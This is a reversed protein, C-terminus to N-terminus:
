FFLPRPKNQNMHEFLSILERIDFVLSHSPNGIRPAIKVPGKTKPLATKPIKETRLHHISTGHGKQPSASNTQDSTIAKL